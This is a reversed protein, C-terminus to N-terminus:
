RDNEVKKIWEEIHAIVEKVFEVKVTKDPFIDPYSEFEADILDEITFEWVSAEGPNVCFYYNNMDATKGM